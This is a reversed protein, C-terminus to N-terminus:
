FFPSKTETRSCFQPTPPHHLNAPLSLLSVGLRWLQGPASASSSQFAWQSGRGLMLPEEQEPFLLGEGWDGSLKQYLLPQLYM